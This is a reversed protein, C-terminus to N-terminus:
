WLIAFYKKLKESNNNGAIKIQKQHEIRMGILKEIDREDHWHDKTFGEGAKVFSCYIKKDDKYGIKRVYAKSLGMKIQRRELGKTLKVENKKFSAIPVQIKGWRTNSSCNPWEFNKFCFGKIGIVKDEQFFRIQLGYEEVKFNPSSELKERAVEEELGKDM